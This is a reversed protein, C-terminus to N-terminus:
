FNTIGANAFFSSRLIQESHQQSKVKAIVDVIYGQADIIYTTRVVGMFERGMFKKLQWVGYLNCVSQDTDVLLSFPLQHKQIFKQHSKEDDTSVGLIAIGKAQLAAYNDRLNCAEQTCTPTNDHPYFYLVVIQGRYDSLRCSQGEQNQAVFDPALSGIPLLTM